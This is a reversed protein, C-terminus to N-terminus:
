WPPIVGLAQWYSVDVWIYYGKKMADQVTKVASNYADEASGSGLMTSEIPVLNKSEPLEIVPIAHGPLLFIYVNLGVSMCMSALAVATDVCTGAYMDFTDKPYQISQIGTLEEFTPTRYRIGWKAMYNYISVIAKVAADDTISSPIGRTALSAHKNLNPEHPTVFAALAWYNSEWDYWNLAEEEPLGCWALENRALLTFHKTKMDEYLKGLGDKYEWKVTLEVTSRTTREMVTPPFAPYYNDVVTGNPILMPFTKYSIWDTFGVVRYSIRLDYISTNGVNTVVVKALWMGLDPNAYVKYVCSMVYDKMRIIVNVKPEEPAPTPKPPRMYVESLVGYALGFQVITLCLLVVAFMKRRSVGKKAATEL